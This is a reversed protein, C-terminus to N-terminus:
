GIKRYGLQILHEGAMRGGAFDDVTVYDDDDRRRTVVVVLTGEAELFVYGLEEAAISVKRTDVNCATSKQPPSRYVFLWCEAVLSAPIV